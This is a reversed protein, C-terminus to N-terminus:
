EYVLGIPGPFLWSLGDRLRDRWNEWNHGDRAEVYKVEMGTAHLLPVLSRNEYILSEYMGCSVFLKDVPRGPAARFENVFSAVTEFVPHTRQSKGIDAFAFSGSQLLLNGFLGPSRWAAHLAAVAGLSAGMLARDRPRGRAPFRAEVAPLLDQAVWRSHDESAAYENMRDPSQTFAVIASAMEYRQVLNDLVTKMGAFHLYDEGDFCVLVPCRRAARMRAPLYVKVRREGGLPGGPVQIEEVTGQRAEPDHRTWDPTEYGTGHCVSNAGYPDNALRPNLPDRVLRTMGALDVELKYEIRSGRPVEISLHWLDTGEIRRFAQSSPLGYVFHRLRVADADGRFVFTMTPGEVIPFEHEALFRDLVEPTIAENEEILRLVALTM